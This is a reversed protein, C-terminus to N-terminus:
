PGSQLAYHTQTIRTWITPTKRERPIRSTRFGTTDTHERGGSIPGTICSRVRALLADSETAGPCNICCFTGCDSVTPWALLLSAPRGLARLKENSWSVRTLIAWVKRSRKASEGNAPLSAPRMYRTTQEAPPVLLIHGAAEWALPSMTYVFPFPDPQAGPAAAHCSSSNDRHFM